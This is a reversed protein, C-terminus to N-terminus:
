RPWMYRRAMGDGVGCILKQISNVRMVSLSRDIGGVHDIDVVHDLWYQGGPPGSREALLNIPVGPIHNYIVHELRDWRHLVTVKGM